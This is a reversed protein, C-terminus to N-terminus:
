KPYTCDRNGYERNEEPSLYSISEVSTTSALSPTYQSLTAVARQERHADLDATAIGDRKKLDELSDEM